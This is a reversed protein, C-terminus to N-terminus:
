VLGDEKSQCQYGQVSGGKLKLRAPYLKRDWPFFQPATEKVDSIGGSPSGPQVGAEYNIWDGRYVIKYDCWSM